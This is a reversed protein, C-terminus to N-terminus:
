VAHTGKEIPLPAPTSTPAPVLHAFANRDLVKKELLLDRLSVLLLRHTALLEAARKREAELIMHVSTDVRARQQESVPM